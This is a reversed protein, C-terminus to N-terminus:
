FFGVDIVDDKILDPGFFAVPQVGLVGVKLLVDGREAFVLFFFGNKPHRAQPHGCVAVQPDIIKIFVKQLLFHLIIM